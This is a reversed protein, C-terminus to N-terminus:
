PSTTDEAIGPQESFLWRVVPEGHGVKPIAAGRPPTDAPLVEAPAQVADLCLIQSPEIVKLLLDLTLLNINKNFSGILKLAKKTFPSKESYIM